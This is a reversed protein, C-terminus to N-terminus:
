YENQPGTPMFLNLNFKLIKKKRRSIMSRSEFNDKLQQHRRLRRARKEGPALRQKEKGRELRRNLDRRWGSPHKAVEECREIDM